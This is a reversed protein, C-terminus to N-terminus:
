IDVLPHSEDFPVVRERLLGKNELSFHRSLEFTKELYDNEEESKKHYHIEISKCKPHEVIRKFLVRDSLGCSHGLIHVEFTDNKGLFGTFQQYNKTKLYGFSKFNELFVNCNLDEIKKYFHDIEDGYGFIIPNQKDNLKGHIYNLSYLDKPINKLYHEVTSTYNFNLIM